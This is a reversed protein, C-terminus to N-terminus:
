PATIRLYFDCLNSACDRWTPRPASRAMATLMDVRKGDELALLEASWADGDFPDVLAGHSGLTGPLAAATSAVVPTGCALAELVPLGLGECVSPVLVARAGRYLEVLVEDGVDTLALLGESEPVRVGGWGGAGALVLPLTLGRSRCGRYVDILFPLNKRPVFNGVHLLYGGPALGVRGLIGASAEGPTFRDDAAGGIVGLSAPDLGFRTLAQAATWPSIAAVRSGNLILKEERRAFEVTEPTHWEPHELASLDYVTVVSVAGEPAVPQVGSHHYIGARTLRGLRRGRSRQEWGGRIPVRRLFPLNLYFPNRLSLKASVPGPVGPHAAPVDVTIFDIGRDASVQKMAASLSLLYRSVGGLAHPVVSLDFGVRIGEDGPTAASKVASGRGGTGLGM